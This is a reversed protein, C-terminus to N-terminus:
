QWLNEEYELLGELEDKEETNECLGIAERIFDIHEDFSIVGDCVYGFDTLEKYVMYKFKDEKLLDMCIDYAEYYHNTLNLMDLYMHYANENNRDREVWFKYLSDLYDFLESNLPDDLMLKDTIRIYEELESLSLMELENIMYKKVGVSDINMKDM